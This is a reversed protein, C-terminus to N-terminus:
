WHGWFSLLVIKGRYDSLRFLDGALDPGAVEPAKQGPQLKRMRFLTAAAIEAFTTKGDRAVDAYDAVVEEFLEEVTSSDVDVDRWYDIVKQSRYTRIKAVYDEDDLRSKSSLIRRYFEALSYIAAAKVNRHPSSVILRKLRDEAQPDHDEFRLMRAVVDMGPHNAHREFLDDIAEAQPEISGRRAIWQLARAEVDHDVNNDAVRQYKATFYDRNPFLDQFVRNAAEETEASDYAEQYRDMVGQYQEDVAALQEEPTGRSCGVM